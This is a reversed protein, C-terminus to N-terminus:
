ENTKHAPLDISFRETKLDLDFYLRSPIKDEPTWWGGTKFAKTQVYQGTRVPYVKIIYDMTGFNHFTGDKDGFIKLSMPTKGVYDDNAEVRAGPESSEIQVYYAITGQPGRETNGSSTTSCGVIVSMAVLGFLMLSFRKMNLLTENSM